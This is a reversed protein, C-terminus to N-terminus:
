NFCQYQIFGNVPTDSIRILWLYGKSGITTSGLIEVNSAEDSTIFTGSTGFIQVKSPTIENFTYQNNNLTSSLYLNEKTIAFTAIGSASYTQFSANDELREDLYEKPILDRNESPTGTSNLQYGYLNPALTGYYFEFDTGTKTIYWDENNHGGDVLKIRQTEVYGLNSLTNEDFVIDSLINQSAMPTTYLFDGGKIFGFNLIESETLQTNTDTFTPPNSINNYDINTIQSGNGNPLLYDINSKFNGSHLLSYDNNSYRYILDSTNGEIRTPLSENGFVNNNNSDIFSLSHEQSSTDLGKFSKNNSIIQNGYLDIDKGNRMSM